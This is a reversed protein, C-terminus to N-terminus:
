KNGSSGRFFMLMAGGFLIILLVVIGGTLAPNLGLLQAAIGMMQVAYWAYLVFFAIIGAFFYLYSGAQDLASPPQFASGFMWVTFGHGANYSDVMNSYGPLPTFVIYSQYQANGDDVIFESATGNYYDVITQVLLIHDDTEVYPVLAPVPGQNNLLNHNMDSFPENAWYPVIYWEGYRAVTFSDEGTGHTLTVRKDPSFVSFTVQDNSAIVSHTESFPYSASLNGQGSLDDLQPFKPPAPMSINIGLGKLYTPGVIAFGAMCMLVIATVIFVIQFPNSDSM